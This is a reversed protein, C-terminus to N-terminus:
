SHAFSSGRCGASVNETAGRTSSGAGLVQPSTADLINLPLMTSLKEGTGPRKTEVFSGPQASYTTTSHKDPHGKHGGSGEPSGAIRLSEYVLDLGRTNGM